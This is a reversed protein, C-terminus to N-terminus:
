FMLTWHFMIKPFINTLNKKASLTINIGNHCKRSTQKLFRTPLQSAWSGHQPSMECAVLEASLRFCEPSRELERSDGTNIDDQLQSATFPLYLPKDVLKCYVM